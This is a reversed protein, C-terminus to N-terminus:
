PVEGLYPFAYSAIWYFLATHALLNVHFHKTWAAIGFLAASTLALGASILACNRTYDLGEYEVGYEWGAVFGLFSLLSVVVFLVWSRIPMPAPSVTNKLLLLGPQWALLAGAPFLSAVATPVGFYVFVVWPLPFPATVSPGSLSMPGLAIAGGLWVAGAAFLLIIPAVPWVSEEAPFPRLVIPPEGQRIASELPDDPAM